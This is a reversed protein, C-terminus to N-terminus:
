CQLHDGNVTDQRSAGNSPILDQANNLLFTDQDDYQPIGKNTKRSIQPIGM